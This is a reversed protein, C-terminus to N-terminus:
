PASYVLHHFRISLFAAEDGLPIRKYLFLSVANCHLDMIVEIGRQDEHPEFGLPDYRKRLLDRPFFELLDRAGRLTDGL